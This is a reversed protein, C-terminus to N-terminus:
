PLGRLKPVLAIVCAALILTLLASISITFSMGKIESWQGLALNGFPAFGFFTLTYLGMVRGRVNDPVSTQLLTNILAFEFMFGIGLLFALGMAITPSTNNAFILLGIPFALNATVLWRGRQGRDGYRAIFFATCLAGVGLMSNLAGYGAEDIHLIQDAFAPLIAFYSIGFVSFILALMLLAFIERHALVFRMGNLLDRWPSEGKVVRERPALRMLLLCAIVALFSLGNLFFCGAAGFAVYLVGGIAPGIVRAGNFMMSNVAIANPLDERGVMEVVFAQRGPGDFSNVVGLLAALAVIHWVQVTGTFALLALIFALVMAASQTMVLLKRKSVRDVIVGGWPSVLLSPIAAAFGVVGLMLESHSLQYVLLAQAVTQMWTGAMSILQGAFYLRFNRHQMARFTKPVRRTSTLANMKGAIPELSRATNLESSKEM